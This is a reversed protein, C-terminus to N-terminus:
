FETSAKLKKKFHLTIKQDTPAKWGNYNRKDPGCNDGSCTDKKVAVNAKKFLNQSRPNLKKETHVAGQSNPFYHYVQIMGEDTDIFTKCYLQIMRYDM